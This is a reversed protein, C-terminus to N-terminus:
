KFPALILVRPRTFTQDQRKDEPMENMVAQKIREGKIIETTQVPEEDGEDESQSESDEGELQKAIEFM